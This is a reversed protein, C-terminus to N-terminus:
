SAMGRLVLDIEQTPAGGAPIYGGKLTCKVTIELWEGKLLKGDDLNPDFKILM